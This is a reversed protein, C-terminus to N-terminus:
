ITFHILIFLALLGSRQGKLCTETPSTSFQKLSPYNKDFFNRIKVLILYYLSIRQVATRM